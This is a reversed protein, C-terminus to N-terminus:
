KLVTFSGLDRGAAATMEAWLVTTLSGPYEHDVRLRDAVRNLALALMAQRTPDEATGPAAWIGLISCAAYFLAHRAAAAFGATSDAAVHRAEKDYFLKRARDIAQVATLLGAQAAPDLGARDATADRVLAPWQATIIDTGENTLTLDAGRPAWVPVARDLDFLYEAMDADTNEPRYLPLQSAINHLNVHTTGEFISAIDHDRRLKPLIGDAFGDTLYSRAALVRHMSGIVEEGLVPVLYKVVSSWMSLQGPCVSLARAVPLATCEAIVLDLHATVLHERVAAIESIPAGYLVREAAYRMGIRLVADMTGLSLGGIATRTIQLAKLVQVLGLGPAGLYADRPLITETFTIGSLDHGRLGVTTVVPLNSITSQDIRHKDVLVLSYANRDSRAFATMFRGATANGIPWKEGTLVLGDPTPTVATETARLDSGHARESVGFAALDGNLLGQALLQKQAASGWLWVPNAGLFSSGYKVALTLNRAALVRTLRIVTELNDLSGGAQLPVMWRPFGADEVLEVAGPPLSDAREGAVIARYSLPGDPEFPDGVAEAFAAAVETARPLVTM